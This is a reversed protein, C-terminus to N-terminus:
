WMEALRNCLILLQPGTPGVVSAMTTIIVGAPVPFRDNHDNLHWVPVPSTSCVAKASSAWRDVVSGVVVVAVTNPYVCIAAQTLTSHGIAAPAQMRIVPQTDAAVMHSTTIFISCRYLEVAARMGLTAEIAVAASHCLFALSNSISENTNARKSGIVMGNKPIMMIMMMM